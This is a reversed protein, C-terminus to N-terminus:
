GDIRWTSKSFWFIFESFYGCSAIELIKIYHHYHINGKLDQQTPKSVDIASVGTKIEPVVKMMPGLENEIIIEEIDNNANPFTTTV